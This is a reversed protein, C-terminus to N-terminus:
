VENGLSVNAKFPPFALSDMMRTMLRKGWEDRVLEARIDLIGTVIDNYINMIVIMITMVNIVQSLVSIKTIKKLLMICQHQFEYKRYKTNNRLNTFYIVKIINLSVVLVVEYFFVLCLAIIQFTLWLHITTM